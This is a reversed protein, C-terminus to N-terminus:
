GAIVAGAHDDCRHKHKERGSVRARHPDKPSSIYPLCKLQTQKPNTSILVFQNPYTWIGEPTEKLEDSTVPFDLSM